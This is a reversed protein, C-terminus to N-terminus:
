FRFKLGASVILPNIEVADADSDGEGRAEYMVYKGDLFISLSRGVKFDLGANVLFDIEKELDTSGLEDEDIAGAEGSVYAVGGGVYPSLVGGRLFHLQATASLIDLDLQGVDEVIDQFGVTLDAGLRQYAVETSFSNTWYRNYLVGYGMDEEFNFEISDVGDSIESNEFQSTSIFIGVENSPQQAAAALPLLLLSLAVLTRKIVNAEV